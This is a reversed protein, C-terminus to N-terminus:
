KYCTFVAGDAGQKEYKWHEVEEAKELRQKYSAVCNVQGKM